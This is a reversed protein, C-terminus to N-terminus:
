MLQESCLPGRRGVIVQVVGSAVRWERAPRLVCTAATCGHTMSEIVPMLADRHGEDSHPRAEDRSSQVLLCGCVHRYSDIMVVPLSVDCTVEDSSRVDRESSQKTAVQDRQNTQNCLLYVREWAVSESSAASLPEREM